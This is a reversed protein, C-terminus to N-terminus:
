KSFGTSYDRFRLYNKYFSALCDTFLSNSHNEQINNEQSIQKFVMLKRHLKIIKSLRM